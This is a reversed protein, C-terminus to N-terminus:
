MKSSCRAIRIVMIIIAVIALFVQWGSTHGAAAKPAELITTHEKESTFYYAEPHHGQERLATKIKEINTGKQIESFIEQQIEKPTKNDLNM